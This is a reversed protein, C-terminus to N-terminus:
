CFRWGTAAGTFEFTLCLNATDLTLNEAIAMILQGNRNVVHDTRSTANHIRVLDGSAPSAPLTITISSGTATIVVSQSATATYSTAQSVVVFKGVDGKSGTYGIVGQPGAITSASGTYGIDGQSGTYGIVGQSGTFGTTGQSGTYGVGGQSGTDGKSGTYGIPGQSGTYGVGGTADDDSFYTLDAWATTGDGLKFKNTDTEYGLEGEALVPNAATWVAATDRRFQLVVPM